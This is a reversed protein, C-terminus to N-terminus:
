DESPMWRIQPPPLHRDLLERIVAATSLGTRAALDHLLQIQQQTLNFQVLRNGPHLRTPPQYDFRDGPNTEAATLLEQHHRNYAAALIAPYPQGTNSSEDKLRTLLQPNLRAGCLRRKRSPHTHATDDRKPSDAETAPNTGTM